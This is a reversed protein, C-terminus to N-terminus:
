EGLETLLQEANDSERWPIYGTGEVRDQVSYLLNICNRLAEVLKPYANAARVIYAANAEAQAAAERTGAKPTVEAVYRADGDVYCGIVAPSRRDPGAHETVTWPVVSTSVNKM